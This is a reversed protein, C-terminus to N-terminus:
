KCTSSIFNSKSVWRWNFPYGARYETRSLVKRVDYVNVSLGSGGINATATCVPNEKEIAACASVALALIIIITKQMIDVMIM